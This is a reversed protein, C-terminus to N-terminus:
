LMKQEMLERFSIGDDMGHRRKWWGCCQVREGVRAFVIHFALSMGMQARAAIIEPM